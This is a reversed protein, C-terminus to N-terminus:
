LACLGPQAIAPRDVNAAADAPRVQFQCHDVFQIGGAEYQQWRRVVVEKELKFNPIGYIMLGGARDHRDYITVQYGLTRLREASVGACRALSASSSRFRAPPKSREENIRM